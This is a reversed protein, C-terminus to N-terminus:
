QEAMRAIADDLAALEAALRERRQLPTETEHTIGCVTVRGITTEARRLIGGESSPITDTDVHLWAALREVFAIDIGGVPQITITVRAEASASEIWDGVARITRGSAENSAQAQPDTTM